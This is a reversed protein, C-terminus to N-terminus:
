NLNASINTKNQKKLLRYPIPKVSPQKIALIKEGVAEKSTMNPVIAVANAHRQM